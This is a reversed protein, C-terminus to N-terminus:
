KWCVFWGCKIWREPWQRPARLALASLVRWSRCGFVTELIPDTVFLDEWSELWIFVFGRLRLEFLGELVWVLNLRIRWSKPRTWVPHSQPTLTPYCMQQPPLIVDKHHNRWWQDGGSLKSECTAGRLKPCKLLWVWLLPKSQGALRTLTVM